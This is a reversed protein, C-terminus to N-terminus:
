QGGGVKAGPKLFLVSAAQFFSKRGKEPNPATKQASGPQKRESSTSSLATRWQGGGVKAGTRKFSVSAAQFVNKLEKLTLACNKPCIWAADEQFIHLVICDEM